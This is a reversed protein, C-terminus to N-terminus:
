LAHIHGCILCTKNRADTHSILDLGPGHEADPIAAAECWSPKTCDKTLRGIIVWRDDESSGRSCSNRCHKRGRCPIVPAWAALLQMEGATVWQRIAPGRCRFLACIMQLGMAAIPSLKEQSCWSGFCPRLRLFQSPSKQLVPLWHSLGSQKDIGSYLPTGCYSGRVCSTAPDAPLELLHGSIGRQM